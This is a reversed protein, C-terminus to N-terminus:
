RRSMPIVRLRRTIMDDVAQGFDKNPNRRCYELVYAWQEDRSITDLDYYQKQMAEKVVNVGSAFGQLWSMLGETLANKAWGDGPQVNANVTACPRAGFGSIIVDARAQPIGIAGLTIGLVLARMM